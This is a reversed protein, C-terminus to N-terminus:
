TPNSCSPTRELWLQRLYALVGLGLGVGSYLYSFWNMPMARLLFAPGKEQLFFAYLQSNLALFLLTLGLFPLRVPPRFPLLPLAALMAFSILLSLANEARTNLDSRLIRKELMIQTWPKARHLVDSRLLGRLTYHKWHEVQIDKNLWIKHGARYLRYGLEVDELSRYSEDFGDMALFVERRIAGFGACFTAADARSIQHTYHHVLNKYVSFFNRPITDKQYSCFLASVDPREQLGQVIRTLTDREITIDADLFFLIDGTSVAAGCNRAAAAGMNRGLSVLRDYLGQAKQRSGDTSGDDVLIIEFNPYDSAAVSGLCPRITREGDHVPIIVSVKPQSNAQPSPAVTSV